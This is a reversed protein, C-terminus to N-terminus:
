VNKDVWFIYTNIISSSCRFKPKSHVSMSCWVYFAKVLNSLYNMLSVQVDNKWVDFLNSRTLRKTISSSCRFKQKSHVSMSCWVYFAKVLNLLNNMLSVQVDNKWVDFLNSRTLRKTISSSCGIKPKSHDLMSSQVYNSGDSEIKLNPNLVKKLYFPANRM